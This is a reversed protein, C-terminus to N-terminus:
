RALNHLNKRKYIKRKTIHLKTKWDYRMKFRLLKKWRKEKKQIYKKHKIPRITNIYIYKYDRNNKRKKQKKHLISIIKKKNLICLISRNTKYIINKQTNRRKNNAQEKRTSWRCNEKCYHWNVNIRDISLWEKYTDWMDKYFEIFDKRLCKIWRWWYIYYSKSNKNNCRYKITSFVSYIRPPKKWKLSLWHKINKKTCWCSFPIEHWSYINREKWCVCILNFFTRWWEKYM